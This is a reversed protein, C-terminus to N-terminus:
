VGSPSNYSNRIHLRRVDYELNAEIPAILFWITQLNKSKHTM